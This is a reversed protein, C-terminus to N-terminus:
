AVTIANKVSWVIGCIVCNWLDCLESWKLFRPMLLVPLIYKYSIDKLLANAQKATRQNPTSDQHFVM